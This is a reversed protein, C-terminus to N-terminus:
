AQRRRDLRVATTCSLASPFPALTSVSRVAPQSRVRHVNSQPSGILEAPCDSKVPAPEYEHTPSPIPHSSLQTRAIPKCIVRVTKIKNKQSTASNPGKPPPSFTAPPQHATKKNPLPQRSDANHSPPPPHLRPNPLTPSRNRPTAIISARQLNLQLASKLWSGNYMSSAFPRISSSMLTSFWSPPWTNAPIYARISTRLWSAFSYHVMKSVANTVSFRDATPLQQLFSKWIPPCLRKAFEALTLNPQLTSFSLGVSKLYADLSPLGSM